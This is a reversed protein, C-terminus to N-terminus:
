LVFGKVTVRMDDVMEILGLARKVGGRSLEENGSAADHIDTLSRNIEEAVQSQQEAATAVEVSTQAVRGVHGLADALDESATSMERAGRSTEEVGDRMAVASASANEQLQVILTEIQGASDQTQGALSRVEDAVVAFGRGHEGARAAEIAANLALMNTREAVERIVGLVMGINQSQQELKNVQESSGHLRTELQHIMTSAREVSQQVGDLLSSTQETANAMDSASSAVQHISTTMENVAAALDGTRITQKKAQEATQLSNSRLTDGMDSVRTLCSDLSQLTTQINNLAGHMTHTLIGRPIPFRYTLNLRGDNAQLQQVLTELEMFQMADRKGSIALYVLVIVEFVVYGVHLLVIHHGTETLIYVGAGAVQLHHFIFHHLAIVVTAALIPLWDRYVLLFALLVFIGFHFEVMGHAQHITLAAYVMYSVAVAIRTVRAGPRAWAIASPIIAAPLGFILWEVWTSHWSALALSAAALLWLIGVSLRDGKRRISTLNHHINEASM